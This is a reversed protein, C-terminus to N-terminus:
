EETKPKLLFNSAFKKVRIVVSEIINRKHTTYKYPFFIRDLAYFILDSIYGVLMICILIAFVMDTRSQKEATAIMAGVGYDKAILEAVIIYTWSIAVIVRIDSFIKSMVHPFYVRKFTTWKGAGITWMTQKYVTPVEKVRSVFIPLLYIIIGFALFHVKMGFGIGFMGIFIGTVATLPIFRISDVWKSFLGNATGFMGIFFGLPISIIIAEAYGTFNLKISYWVNDLLNYNSFLENFAYVVKLPSPFITSSINGFTVALQWFVIIGVFGVVTLMIQKKKSLSEGISLVNSM